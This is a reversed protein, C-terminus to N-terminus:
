CMSQVGTGWACVPFISGMESSSPPSQPWSCREFLSVEPVVPFSLLSRSSAEQQQKLTGPWNQPPLCFPVMTFILTAWWMAQAPSKRHLTSTSNLINSHVLVITHEVFQEECRTNEASWRIATYFAVYVGWLYCSEKSTFCVSNLRNM